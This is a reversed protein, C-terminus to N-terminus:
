FVELFGFANLGTFSADFNGFESEGSETAVNESSNALVLDASGGASTVVGGVQGAVADGTVAEAAQISEAANDGEQVNEFGESVVDAVIATSSAVNQGVFAAAVNFAVGDGTEVDVEESANTADVSADGASVVGLVQGGVGDGTSVDASQAALFDNDGEQINTALGGVIDSVSITNGGPWGNQGVFASAENNADGDGTEIGVDDSTNAAVIDASGTASTVAGIVQGGVSDGTSATAAQVIEATNDGEQVNFSTEFTIDAAIATETGLTSGVYAASDNNAFADGTDIEVDESSNTADVSTDGASVVGLVQGGVGDGTSADASQENTYENDGEHLAGPPLFAGPGAVIDVATVSATSLDNHGVFAAADNEVDADGTAIDVDESTNAAVIDASGGAATVVGIVQGGVGDGSAATSAQVIESENDGEQVNLGPGTAIDTVLVVPDVLGNHGTYQAASNDGSVDGSEVSAEDTHNTADVSTDGAGVSGTVQGAIADGSGSEGGQDTGTDNDGEQTNGAGASDIDALAVGSSMGLSCVLVVLFMRLITTV